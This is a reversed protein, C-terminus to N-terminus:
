EKLPIPIGDESSFTLSVKEGKQFLTKKRPNVVNVKIKKGKYIEVEYQVLILPHRSLENLETRKWRIRVL